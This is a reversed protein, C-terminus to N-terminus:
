ADVAREIANRLFAMSASRLERIQSAAQDFSTDSRSVLHCNEKDALRNQLGTAKLISDLRSHNASQAPNDYRRFTLFQRNFLIAFSTGHFSDTCIYDADRILGVFERPGVNVLKQFEDAARHDAPHVPIMVPKLGREAAIRLAASRMYADSELFYCLLYHPSIQRQEGAFERWQAPRLLYAPDLVVRAERGTLSKIIGAGAQERISLNPIQSIREALWERTDKPVESVGFSPAYAIRKERPVFSLFYAADKCHGIPHWVQDSGVIVADAAPPDRELEEASFYTREGLHLQSNLFDEFRQRQQRKDVTFTDGSAGSVLGRVRAPLKRLANLFLSRSSDKNGSDNYPDYDILEPQYGLGAVTSQMAYLQLFTGYNFYRPFSLISVKTM